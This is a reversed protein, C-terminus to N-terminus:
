LTQQKLVYLRLSYKHFSNMGWSVVLDIRRLRDLYEDADPYTVNSATMSWQYGPFDEGFDGSDSFIEDPDALKKEAMKMQALLPATTNFRAEGALSVSQSQSGLAAVLSIALIAMAVMVELLTFGSLDCNTKRFLHKM